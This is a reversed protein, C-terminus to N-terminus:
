KVCVVPNPILIGDQRECLLLDLPIGKILKNDGALFKLVFAPMSSMWSGTKVLM